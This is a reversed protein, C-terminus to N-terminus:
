VRVCRTHIDLVSQEQEECTKKVKESCYVVTKVYKDWHKMRGTVRGFLQYMCDKSMYGHWIIAHTFSGIKPCTLTQGMGICAHGTFVLPRDFLGFEELRAYVLEGVETSAGTIPASCLKPDNGWLFYMNKDTGNLVVVVARPNQALAMDRVATHTGTRSSGPIFAVTRNSTHGTLIDPNGSLVSEAFEVQSTHEPSPDVVEFQVDNCGVYNEMNLSSVDFPISSWFENDTDVVRSPTASFAVIKRCISLAHIQVVVSRAFPSAYRHFEDCYLSMGDYEHEGAFDELSQAVHLMDGFRTYNSCAVVVKPRRTPTPHRLLSELHDVSRASVINKSPRSSFMCVSSKGYAETIQSLRGVFQRNNLITNMTFIIHTGHPNRALETQIQQIAVFTKGMQTLLACITIDPM